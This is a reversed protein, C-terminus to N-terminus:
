CDKLACSVIGLGEPQAGSPRSIFCDIPLEPHFVMQDCCAWISLSPLACLLLCLSDAGLACASSPAGGHCAQAEDLLGSVGVPASISSVLCHSALKVSSLSGILGRPFGLRAWSM